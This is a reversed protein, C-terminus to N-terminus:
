DLSIAYPQTAPYSDTALDTKTKRRVRVASLDSVINQLLEHVRQQHQFLQVDTLQQQNERVQVQAVDLHGQQIQRAAVEEDRLRTIEM